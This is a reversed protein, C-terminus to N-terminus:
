QEGPFRMRTLLARYRPDGRLGELRPDMRMYSLLTSRQEFAKELWRFAEDREDLGAYVIAIQYSTTRGTEARPLIEALIARAEKKRGAVAYAHGLSALTNTGRGAIAMAREFERFAEDFRGLQEYVLGLGWHATSFEPDLGLTAELQAQAGPYDRGFYQIVGVNARATLDMPDLDFAQRAHEVAEPLRGTAALLRSYAHHADAGSPNLELARRYEQEAGVWDWEGYALEYGRAAHAEALDPDLEIAKNAATRANDFAESSPVKTYFPLVNYYDALGAYAPAFASDATVAQRFHDVSAQIGEPTRTNLHFRGRLYSEEAEPNVPHAASLRQREDQTLRVDIQRAVQQSVEGVLQRVNGFQRVYRESWLTDGTTGDVLRLAIQVDSGDRLVSGELLTQVRLKRAIEPASLQTGKFEGASSRSIVQLGQVQALSSIVADTLGDAVYEETSDASRNELPLVALRKM